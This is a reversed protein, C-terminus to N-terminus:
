ANKDPGLTFAGTGANGFLQGSVKDYLYGTTGIRVPIADFLKIKNNEDTWDEIRFSYLRASSPFGGTYANFIAIPNSPNTSRAQTGKSTGDVYLATSNDYVIEVKSKVSSNSSPSTSSIGWKGPSVNGVWCGSSASPGAIVQTTSLNATYQADFNLYLFKKFVIGTDIWQTGTSEM